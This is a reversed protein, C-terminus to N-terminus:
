YVCLVVPHFIRDNETETPYNCNTPSGLLQQPAAAGIAEGPSFPHGDAAAFQL